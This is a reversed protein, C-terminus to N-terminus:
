RAFVAGNAPNCLPPCLNGHNLASQRNYQSAQASITLVTISKALAGDKEIEISPFSCNSNNFPVSLDFDINEKPNSPKSYTPVIFITHRNEYENPLGQLDSYKQLNQANTGTEPYRALYIRVGLQPASNECKIGCTTNEIEWIFQKLRDLEIWISRADKQYAGNFKVMGLNPMSSNYRNAMELLTQVKMKDLPPATSYNKCPNCNGPLTYNSLETSVTKLKNNLQLNNYALWALLIAMISIVVVPTKKM